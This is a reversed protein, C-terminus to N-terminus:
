HVTEGEKTVQAAALSSAISDDKATIFTATETEQPTQTRSAKVFVGHRDFISEAAALSLKPDNRQRVAEALANFADPVLAGLMEKAAVIDEGLEQDYDSIVGTAIQNKLIRYEPQQKLNALGAPTLGIHEAIAADPLGLVELRAAKHM